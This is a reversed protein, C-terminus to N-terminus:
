HKKSNLLEQILNFWDSTIKEAGFKEKVYRKLPTSVNDEHINVEAIKKTCQDIDECLYIKEYITDSGDWNLILPYAGSAMGESPSLHFSEFDSTSLIFGIKTFWEEIDSGFGDFIVSKKWPANEIRKFVAEYYEREEEKKWLWTYEQPLKGKIYLKYRRDKHWLKELLDIALDLRKRSPCIGIIGLNFSAENIKPLDLKITDVVNYIMIMKERPFKFTRYFEEYVFPSIAIIKDINDLNFDRPYQTDKEQLHMRVILVQNPKKNQSYWVANGLGWECVVIDAWEVCKLSHEENHSNHGAWQDIEVEFEKNRRFYEIIISAFKLDHGAFVIKKKGM